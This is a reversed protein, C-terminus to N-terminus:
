RTPNGDIRELAERAARKVKNRDIQVNTLPSNAIATLSQKLRSLDGSPNREAYLLTGKIGNLLVTTRKRAQDDAYREDRLAVENEPDLMEKLVRECQPDGARALGTAANYRANPYTDHLMAQLRKEAREGGVVGLAYAAVARLEAHPRYLTREGDQGIPALPEGSLDQAESAALLVELVQQQRPEDGALVEPGCNDALTAIAELASYRVEVEVPKGEQTAARLLV